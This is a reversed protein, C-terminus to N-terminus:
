MKCVHGFVMHSCACVGANLKSCRISFQVRVRGAITELSNVPCPEDCSGRRKVLVDRLDEPRLHFVPNCLSVEAMGQSGKRSQRFSIKLGGSDEACAEWVDQVRISFADKPFCLYETQVIEEASWDTM